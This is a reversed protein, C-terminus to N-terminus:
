RLVATPRWLAAGGELGADNSVLTVNGPLKFDSGLFDDVAEAMEVADVPAKLQATRIASNGNDVVVAVVGSLNAGSQRSRALAAISSNQNDELRM